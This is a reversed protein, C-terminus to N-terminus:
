FTNILYLINLYLKNPINNCHVTLETENMQLMKLM